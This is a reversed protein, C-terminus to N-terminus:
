VTIALLVLETRGVEVRTAALHGLVCVVDNPSDSFTPYVGEYLLLLNCRQSCNMCGLMHKMCGLRFPEATNNKLQMNAYLVFLLFLM